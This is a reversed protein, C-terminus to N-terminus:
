DGYEPPWADLGEARAARWLNRDYTAFTLAAPLRSSLAVAAAIHAADFGRLAQRRAV